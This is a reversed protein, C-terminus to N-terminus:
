STAFLAHIRAEIDAEIFCYFGGLAKYFSGLNGDRVAFENVGTPHTQGSRGGTRLMPALLKSGQVCWEVADHQAM